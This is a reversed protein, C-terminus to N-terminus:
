LLINTNSLFIVETNHKGNAKLDGYAFRNGLYTLSSLSKQQDKGWNLLVFTVVAKVKLKSINERDRERVRREERQVEIGRERQKSDRNKMVTGPLKPARPNRHKGKTKYIEKMVM